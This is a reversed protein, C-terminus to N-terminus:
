EAVRGFRNRLPKNLDPSRSVDGELRGIMKERRIGPIRAIAPDAGRIIWDVFDGDDFVLEVLQVGPNSNTSLWCCTM